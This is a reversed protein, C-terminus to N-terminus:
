AAAHRDYLAEEWDQYIGAEIEQPSFRTAMDAGTMKKEM